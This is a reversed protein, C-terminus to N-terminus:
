GPRNKLGGVHAALSSRQLSWPRRSTWVVKPGHCRSEAVPVSHADVVRGGGGEEMGNM